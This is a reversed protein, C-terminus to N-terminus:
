MEYTQTKTNLVATLVENSSDALYETIDSTVSEYLLKLDAIDKNKSDLEIQYFKILERAGIREQQIQHGLGVSYNYWSKSERSLQEDKATQAKNFWRRIVYGRVVSILTFLMTVVWLQSFTYTIGVLHYIVPSVLLTIFFGVFTNTNAELLSVWKSQGLKM